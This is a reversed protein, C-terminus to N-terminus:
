EIKPNRQYNLLIVNSMQGNLYSLTLRLQENLCSLTLTPWTSFGAGRPGGLRSSVRTYSAQSAKLCTWLGPSLSVGRWHHRERKRTNGVAVTWTCQTQDTTYIVGVPNIGGCRNAHFMPEPKIPSWSSPLTSALLRNCSWDITFHLCPLFHTVSQIILHWLLYCVVTNEASYPAGFYLGCCSFQIIHVCILRM